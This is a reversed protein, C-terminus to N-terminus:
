SNAIVAYIEHSPCLRILEDRVPSTNYDFAFRTREVEKVAVRLRNADLRSLSGQALGVLSEYDPFGETGQNQIAIAENCFSEREDSGLEPTAPWALVVLLTITFVPLLARMARVVSRVLGVPHGSAEMSALRDSTAATGLM